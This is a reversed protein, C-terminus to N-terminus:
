VHKILKILQFLQMLIQRHCVLMWYKRALLLQEKEQLRLINLDVEM